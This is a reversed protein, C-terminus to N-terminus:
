TLLLSAAIMLALLAASLTCAFNVWDNNLAQWGRLRTTPSGCTHLPHHETEKQCAPCFYIAQLAAGLWSDVLSGALGALSVLLFVAAAQSPPPRLPADPWPLAALAAIFAAGALAALTGLPTIGGSSGREVPQGTTIRVPPIPSLVGLETAWTDANAAALAAAYALWPWGQQPFFLHLLVLLGAIGGNALVQGADRRSGKSFKENLARKRQSFARSLLSSSVFFAVLLAAWSLGGLGFIVAGLLTAALAGSLSLSRAQWAAASILAALAFGILLQPFAPM